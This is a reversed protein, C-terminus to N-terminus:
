DLQKTKTYNYAWFIFLFQLPIRFWLLWEPVDSFLTHREQLMYIHVAFFVILMAIIGWAAFSRTKKFLLLVAFAIEAVGSLYIMELHAPIYPPMFAIYTEPSIFHNVGAGFYFFAM